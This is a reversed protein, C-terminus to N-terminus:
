NLSQDILNGDHYYEETNTIYIANDIKYNGSPVAILMVGYGGDNNWWDEIDSLIQETAFNEIDQNLASDLDKLYYVHDGYNELYNIDDIDEVEETTYVIDDIAGSDGGGSYFIKIGTVGLDALKLLLGTMDNETM